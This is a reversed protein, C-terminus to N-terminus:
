PQDRWTQVLHNMHGLLHLPDVQANREEDSTGGRGLLVRSDFNLRFVRLRCDVDQICTPTDNHHTLLVALFLSLIRSEEKQLAGVEQILFRTIVVDLLNGFLVGIDTIIM